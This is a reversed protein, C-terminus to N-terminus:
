DDLVKPEPLPVIFKGTYGATRLKPVIIDKMHWSLLLAYPPQDTVLAAEDVVPILTGPINTGIKGSGAVECVCTLFAGIGAYHILPTARTAAGIGYVQQRQEFSIKWLLGRLATAAAKARLPFDSKQKRATIRFSGGHTPVQESSVAHLGHRELLLSLSAVSYYRLHEHYITDIQLGDLISALDHNETVFVGDGALLEFVGELFDHPDPVHALVNCATIIKAPGHKARIEHALTWTFFDKYKVVMADAIKDIQDTPEVAIRKLNSNYRSILTGDNAGIDVVVDDIFLNGQLHRALVQYHERLAASNGTSYPHDPQFVEAPDVIYSLQVLGCNDCKVLCLPYSHGSKGEALPQTGMDFLPLLLYPSRCGGCTRVYGPM